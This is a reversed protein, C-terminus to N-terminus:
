LIEYVLSSSPHPLQLNSNDKGDIRNLADRGIGYWIDIDNADVASWRDVCVFEGYQESRWEIWLKKGLLNYGCAWHTFKHDDIYEM